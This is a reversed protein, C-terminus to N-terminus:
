RSLRPREGPLALVGIGDIFRDEKYGQHTRLRVRNSVNGEVTHLTDGEVSRVLASHGGRLTHLRVYDGQRPEFSDWEASGSGIWRGHREFWTRLAVNNPILWGGQGGGSLPAGAVKYVWSVFDTCWLDGPGVYRRLAFPYDSLDAGVTAPGKGVQDEAIRVIRARM